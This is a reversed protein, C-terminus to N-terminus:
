WHQINCKLYIFMIKRLPLNEKDCSQKCSATWAYLPPNPFVKFIYSMFLLVPIIINDEKIKKNICLTLFRYYYSQMM